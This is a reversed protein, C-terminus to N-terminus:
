AHEVEKAYDKLYEYATILQITIKKAKEQINEGCGVFKDPHNEMLLKRYNSKLKSLTFNNDLKLLGMAKAYTM